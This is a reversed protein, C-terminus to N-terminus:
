NISHGLKDNKLGSPLTKSPLYLILYESYIVSIKWWILLTLFCIIKAQLYVNQIYTGCFEHDAPSRFARIKFFLTHPWINEWSLPCRIRVLSSKCAIKHTNVRERAHVWILVIQNSLFDTNQWKEKKKFYQLANTIFICMWCLVKFDAFNHYTFHIRLFLKKM